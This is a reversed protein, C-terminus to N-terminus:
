NQLERVQEISLETVEAIDALSMQKELMTRAIMAREVQRSEMDKQKDREILIDTLATTEERSFYKTLETMDM